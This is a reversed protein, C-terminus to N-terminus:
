KDAGVVDLATSAHLMGALPGSDFDVNIVLPGSPQAKPV